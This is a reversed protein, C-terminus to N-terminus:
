VHLMAFKYCIYRYDGWAIRENLGEILNHKNIYYEGNVHKEITYILHGIKLESDLNIKRYKM